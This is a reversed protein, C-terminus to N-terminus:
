YKFVANISIKNGPVKPLITQYSNYVSNTASQLHPMTLVSKAQPILYSIDSINFVALVFPRYFFFYREVLLQQRKTFMSSEWSQMVHCFKRRWIRSNGLFRRKREGGLYIYGGLFIIPVM